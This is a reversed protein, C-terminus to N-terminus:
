NVPDPAVPQALPSPARLPPPSPRGVPAARHSRAPPIASAPACRSDIHNARGASLVFLAKMVAVAHCGQFECTHLARIVSVITRARSRSVVVPQLHAANTHRPCSTGHSQAL